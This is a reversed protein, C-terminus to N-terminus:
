SVYQPFGPSILLSPIQGVKSPEARKDLFISTELTCNSTRDVQGTNQRNSTRKERREKQEGWGTSDFPWGGQICLYVSSLQVLRQLEAASTTIVHFSM